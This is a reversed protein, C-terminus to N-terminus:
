VVMNASVHARQRCTRGARRLSSDRTNIDSGRTNIPPTRAHTSTHTKVERANSQSDDEIWAPRCTKVGLEVGSRMCQLHARRLRPYIPPVTWAPIFVNIYSVNVTVNGGRHKHEATICRVQGAITKEFSEQREMSAAIKLGLHLERFWYAKGIKFILHPARHEVVNRDAHDLIGEM